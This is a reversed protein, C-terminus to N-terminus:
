EIAGKVVGQEVLRNLREPFSMVPRSPPAKQWEFRIGAETLRDQLTHVGHDPVSIEVRGGRDLVRAGPVLVKAAKIFENDAAKPWVSATYQM